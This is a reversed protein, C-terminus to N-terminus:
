RLKAATVWWRPHLVMIRARAEDATAADPFVGFATPGAGSIAVHEASAEAALADLVEAAEPVVSVAARSLDNGTSQVFRLLASRDLLDPADPPVYAEALPGASLAHFVRATKDAPVDARPNVVVVDLAPVGGAIESLQDGTGTMWCARSEFCVPVDAGLSAAIGLWDVAGSAHQNANARKLARLLAGADASGGGIGAAVPLTKLLRVAGVRIDPALDRVVSLTRELINAGVLDAAFPGSVSLAAAQDLDLTLVDGVDAFAVLSALEHLGDPRRGAVSLTLNIKAPAAERFTNM